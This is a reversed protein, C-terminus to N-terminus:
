YGGYKGLQLHRAHLHNENHLFRKGIPSTTNSPTTSNSVTTSNNKNAKEYDRVLKADHGTSQRLELYRCTSVDGGTISYKVVESALTLPGLLLDRAIFGKSYDNSSYDCVILHFNEGAPNQAYYIDDLTGALTLQQKQKLIVENTGIPVNETHVLRLRSVGTKEMEDPFYVPVRLMGDLIVDENEDQTMTWMEGFESPPISEKIGFIYINGDVCPYAQYTKSPDILPAEYYSGTTSGYVSSFNYGSDGFDPETYPVGVAAYQAQSTIDVVDGDDTSQRPLLIASRRIRKTNSDGDEDEGDGNGGDDGDDDDHEEVGDDSVVPEVEGTGDLKFCGKKLNWAPPNLLTIPSLGTAKVFVQNTLDISTAIGACDGIPQVGGDSSVAAKVNASIGPSDVLGASIVKIGLVTFGVGIEVPLNLKTTVDISGKVTFIEKKSPEFGGSNASWSPRVALDVYAKGWTLSAGALLQGEAAATFELDAGLSIYPGASILTGVSFPSIPVTFLPQKYTTTYKIQADVGLAISLEMNADVHVGAEVLRSLWDLEWSGTIDISGKVGCDVCYLALEGSAGTGAGNKGFRSILFQPGWPSNVLNRSQPLSFTTGYIKKPRAASYDRVQRRQLSHGRKELDTFIDLADEEDDEQEDTDPLPDDYILGPYEALFASFSADDVDQYGYTLDLDEDFFDGLCATPLNHVADPPATCNPNDSEGFPADLVDPPQSTTAPYSSTASLTTSSTQSPRTTTIPRPSTGPRYRGWSFKLGGWIARADTLAVSATCSLTSADFGLSEAKLWCGLGEVDCDKTAIFVMDVKWSQQAVNFAQKNNFTIHISNAGKKYDYSVLDSDDLIVAPTSFNFRLWAWQHNNFPTGKGQPAVYMSRQQGPQLHLANGGDHDWYRCPVLTATPTSGVFLATSSGWFSDNGYDGHTPTPAIATMSLGAWHNGPRQPAPPAPPAAPAVSVQAVYSASSKTQANTHDVAWDEWHGKPSPAGPPAPLTTSAVSVKPVYSSSPKTLITTRDVAWDEWAPQPLATVVSAFIALYITPTYM